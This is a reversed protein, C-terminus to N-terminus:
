EDGNPAEREEFQLGEDTLYTGRYKGSNLEDRLRDRFAQYKEPDNFDPVSLSINMRQDPKPHAKWDGWPIEDLQSPTLTELKQLRPAPPRRAELPEARELAWLERRIKADERKSKRLESQKM